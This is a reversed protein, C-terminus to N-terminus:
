PVKQIKPHKNGTTLKQKESVTSQLALVALVMFNFQITTSHRRSHDSTVGRPHPPGEGQNPYLSLTLSNRRQFKNRRSSKKTFNSESQDTLHTHNNGPHTQNSADKCM